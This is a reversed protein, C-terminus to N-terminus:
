RVKTKYLEALLTEISSATCRELSAVIDSRLSILAEPSRFRGGPRRQVTQGIPRDSQVTRRAPLGSEVMLYTM